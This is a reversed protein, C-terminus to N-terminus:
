GRVPEIDITYQPVDAERIIERGDHRAVIHLMAFWRRINEELSRLAEAVRGGTAHDELVGVDPDLGSPGPAHLHNRHRRGMRRLRQLVRVHHNIAQVTQFNNSPCAGAQGPVRAVHFNGRWSAGEAIM